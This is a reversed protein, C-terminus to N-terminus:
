KRQRIEAERAMLNRQLFFLSDSKIKGKSKKAGTGSMGSMSQVHKTAASRPSTPIRSSQQQHQQDRPTNTMDYIMTDELQSSSIVNSRNSQGQQIIDGLVTVFESKKVYLLRNDNNEMNLAINAIVLVIVVGVCVGHTHKSM